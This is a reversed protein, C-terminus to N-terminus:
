LPFPEAPKKRSGWSGYLDLVELKVSCTAM